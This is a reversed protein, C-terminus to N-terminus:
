STKKKPVTVPPSITGGARAPVTAIVRGSRDPLGTSTQTSSRSGSQAGRGTQTSTSQRAAALAQARVQGHKAALGDFRSVGPPIREPKLPLENPRVVTRYGKRVTVGKGPYQSNEVQVIGEDVGVMTASDDTVLVSFITGRVGLVTTPTSFTYPNPRGGIREIFLRVQGLFIELAKMWSARAVGLRVWSGSFIEFRSGDELGILVYGDSGTRIEDNMELASDKNLVLIEGTTFRGHQVEGRLELVHFEPRQGPHPGQAASATGARLALILSFVLILASYTRTKRM